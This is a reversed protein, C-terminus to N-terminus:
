VRVEKLPVSSWSYNQFNDISIDIKDTDFRVPVDFECTVHILEGSSPATTFSIIGTTIDINYAVGEVQEISDLYIQYSGAVIKNIKRTTQYAGAEYTKITQYTTTAGDGIGIQQWSMEYDSWDKFRFGIARGRRAHFFSLITRIQSESKVSHTVNYTSLPRDWNINRSEYGSALTIIDTSYAPGGTVGYDIDEPFRVEAFNTM